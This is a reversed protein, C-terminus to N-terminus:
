SLPLSDGVVPTSQPKLPVLDGPPLHEAVTGPQPDGSNRHGLATSARWGLDSSAPLQNELKNIYCQTHRQSISLFALPFPVRWAHAKFVQGRRSKCFGTPWTSDNGRSSILFSLSLAASHSCIM